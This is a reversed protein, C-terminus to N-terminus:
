AKEAGRQNLRALLDEGDQIWFKSSAPLRAEPYDSAFDIFRGTWGDPLYREMATGEAYFAAVERHDFDVFMIPFLDAVDWWSRASAFRQALEQKLDHAQVEHPAMRDLFRQASAENICLIGFRFQENFPPVDYGHAIFEDRWKNVDMVWLDRPSRFWRIDGQRRVAVVVDEEDDENKQTM